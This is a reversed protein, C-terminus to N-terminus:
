YYNYETSKLIDGEFTHTGTHDLKCTVDIWVKMGSKQVLRCFAYDESLYRGSDPDKICDFFLWFNEPAYYKPDAGCLDNLYSLDPNNIKLIEFTEREILMFGTPADKVEVINDKIEIKGANYNVPYNLLRNQIDKSLEEKPRSDIISEIKSWDYGKKPYVGSIVSVKSALLKIINIPEWSVDADIFLIHTFETNTLFYSVLTNRGRTILSENGITKVQHKIGVQSLFHSSNLFSNFYGEFLQGGYCPTAILVNVETPNFGFVNEFADPDTPVELREAKVRESTEVKKMM